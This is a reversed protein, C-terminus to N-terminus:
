MGVHTDSVPFQVRVRDGMETSVPGSTSQSRQDFGVRKGSRRPQGSISVVPCLPLTRLNLKLRTRPGQDSLNPRTLYTLLYTLVKNFM